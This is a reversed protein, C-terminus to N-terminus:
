DDYRGLNPSLTSIVSQGTFFLFAFFPRIGV